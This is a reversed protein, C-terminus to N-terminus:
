GVTTMRFPTFSRRNGKPREAIRMREPRRVAVDIAAKEADIHDLTGCYGATEQECQDRDAITSANYAYSIFEGCGAGM